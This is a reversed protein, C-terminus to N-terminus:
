LADLFKRAIATYDGDFHHGGETEVHAVKQLSPDTCASDKEEKGYVCIVREAPLAAIAQAVDYGSEGIGLWGSVTVQFSTTLGPGMLGIVRTRDQVARATAPLQDDATMPLAGGAQM